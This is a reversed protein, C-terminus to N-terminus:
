NTNDSESKAWAVLDDRLLDIASTIAGMGERMDETLGGREPPVGSSGSLDDKADAAYNFLHEVIMKRAERKAHDIESQMYAEDYQTTM